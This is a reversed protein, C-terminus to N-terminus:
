CPFYRNIISSARLAKVKDINLPKQVYAEINQVAKAKEIDTISESSTLVNIKIKSVKEPDLQNLKEIFNWGDMVPMNLDVFILDPLMHSVDSNILQEIDSYAKLPNLYSQVTEIDPFKKLIKESVFISTPDDDIIIVKKIPRLEM